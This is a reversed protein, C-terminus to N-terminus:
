LRFQAPGAVETDSPQRFDLRVGRRVGAGSGTVERVLRGDDAPRRWFFDIMHLDAKVDGSSVFM